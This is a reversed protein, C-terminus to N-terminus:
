YHRDLIYWGFARLKIKAHSDRVLPDLASWATEIVERAQLECAELAGCAVLTEIVSGVVEPQTPKASLTRWLKRRAEQDLRSMAKAIPATVKGERIDEGRSKLERQFGKLNLVDDVIQFAVGFAEFLDGLGKVQADTGNGILAAMRALASPPVASKLRHTALLRRELLVGDGTEVVQPMVEALGDIDLAQGAHAARIAQFYAEYVQVRKIPSLREDAAPMEALFYCISGANIALPVGHTVHASPGGRRITSSDQVDDVILSGVHLLEPMALWSRFKEPDGGVVDLSALLGYSRWAKGGREVIERVPKVVTRAYQELDVGDLWHERGPAAILKKAHERTMEMPLLANIAKRTEKGVARFFEDITDVNSFGSREVFGLGSIAKVGRVGQVRVRGEWFSPPSILTIFEQAAFEADITAALALEPVELKWRSPYSCFTRASTWEELPTLSFDEVRTAQGAANTLIIGSESLREGSKRDFLEYVSLESGDDLQASLWNWAIQQLKNGTADFHKGFEHDYWGRGRAGHRQGDIAVTGSVECGPVFYYFMHEAASGRVVGDQGHRVVPKTLRFNLECGAGNEENVLTLQYSGDDLKIFKNGDFNLALRDWELSSAGTFMRDPHPVKGQRLVERIARQFHPDKTGDGRDLRQLTVGPAHRDLVSDFLYRQQEVDVIAWQVSHAFRMKKAEKDGEPSAAREEGLALMFFAAFLSYARGDAATVHANLYWWETTSSRHPLDHLALDIPGAGPWDAPLQM